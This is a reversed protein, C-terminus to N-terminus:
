GSPIRSGMELVHKWRARLEESSGDLFCRRGQKKYAFFMAFVTRLKSLTAYAVPSNAKFRIFYPCSAPSRLLLTHTNTGESTLEYRDSKSM